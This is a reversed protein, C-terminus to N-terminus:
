EGHCAQCLEGNENPRRLFYTKFKEGRKHKERGPLLRDLLSSPVYRRSSEWRGHPYHCTACTIKNDKLPLDAPVTFNATEDTPHSTKGYEHCTTCMETVNDKLPATKLASIKGPLFQPKEIHCNTCGSPDNLEEHPNGKIVRFISSLLAGREKEKNGARDVSFYRVKARKKKSTKFPITYLPSKTTVRKGSTTYFIYDCGSPNKGKDNCKLRVKGSKATAKTKPPRTDPKVKKFKPTLTKKEGTGVSFGITTDKKSSGKYKYGDLFGFGLIHETDPTLTATVSGTGLFVGDVYIPMDDIIGGSATTIPTIIAKGPIKEDTKVKQYIGKIKTFSSEPPVKIIVDSGDLQFGSEKRSEKTIKILEFGEVCGLNVRYATRESRRGDIIVSGVGAFKKGVYIPARGIINGDVDEGVITVDKVRAKDTNSRFAAGTDPDKPGGAGGPQKPNPIKEAMGCDLQVIGSKPDQAEVKTGINSDSRFSSDGSSGPDSGGSSSPGPGGGGSSGSGGSGSGGSGSGGSDSDGSSSSPIGSVENSPTSENLSADYDTVALYYLQESLGELAYNIKDDADPDPSGIDVPSNGGTAGTGNYTDPASGYYVKYGAHDAENSKDWQLKIDLSAYANAVGLLFFLILVKKVIRM